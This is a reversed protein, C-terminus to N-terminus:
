VQVSGEKAMMYIDYFLKVNHFGRRKNRNTGRFIVVHIGAERCINCTCKEWIRSELTRRYSAHIIGINESSRRLLRDYELVVELTSELSIENRGYRELANLAKRELRTLRSPDIGMERASSVVRPDYSPPVRIAAYWEGDVGFYNMESRLWAKRLFSASDFSSIGAQRFYDLLQMRLIGLLHIRVGQRRRRVARLIAEIIARVRATPYRVLGGIAIYDYGMDLLDNVSEVYTSEDYGQAAGVPTFSLNHTRVYDLFLKANQLTIIRRQEKEQLTLPQCEVRGNHKVLISNVIIHDPSIGTDFGLTNYLQAVRGPSASAPPVEENVYTFAGCDGMIQVQPLHKLRLYARINDYGRITPGSGNNGLRLKNEFLALSILLGDYPPEPFIEHAYLGTKYSDRRCKPSEERFDFDPEVRDEWTPLFFLPRHGPHGKECETSGSFLGSHMLTKRNKKNNLSRRKRTYQAIISLIVPSAPEIM